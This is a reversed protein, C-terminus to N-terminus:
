SISKVVTYIYDEKEIPNENRLQTSSVKRGKSLTFKESEVDGDYWHVFIILEDSKDALDAIYLSLDPDLGYNDRTQELHSSIARDIKTKSWGKAKYKRKLRKIDAEPSEDPLKESFLGCSCPGSTVTYTDFNSPLQKNVTLNVVPEVKLEKPVGSNILEAKKEPLAITIYYCM